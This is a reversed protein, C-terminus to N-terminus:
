VRGLSLKRLPKRPPKRGASNSNTRNDIPVIINPRIRVLDQVTNSGSSPEYESWTNRTNRGTNCAQRIVADRMETKHLRGFISEFEKKQHRQMYRMAHEPNVDETLRYLTSGASYRVEIYGKAKLHRLSELLKGRSMAVPSAIYAGDDIRRVGHMFQRLSISEWEKGYLHTRGFIFAVTEREYLDMYM